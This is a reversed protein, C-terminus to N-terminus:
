YQAICIKAVVQLRKLNPAWPSKGGNQSIQKCSKSELNPQISIKSRGSNKHTLLDLYQRPLSVLRGGKFPSWGQVTDTRPM